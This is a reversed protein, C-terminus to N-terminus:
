QEIKELILFDKKIIDKMNPNYAVVAPHYFPIITIKNKRFIKGHIKSIGQIKDKLGYKAFIYATSFNGLTCIIKPKIANIQLGLYPAHREIEEPKPNRNGPPRLKLINAIYIDKRKLNILELAEDLIKGARGCFPRSSLAENRGPAEGIFMIKALSSGEGFVPNEGQVFLSDERFNKLFKKEIKKLKEDKELRNM